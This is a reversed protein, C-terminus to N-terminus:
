DDKHQNFADPLWALYYYKIKEVRKLVRSGYVRAQLYFAHRSFIIKDTHIHVNRKQYRELGKVRM